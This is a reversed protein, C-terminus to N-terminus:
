VALLLANVPLSVIATDAVSLSVAPLLEPAVVSASLATSVVAGVTVDSVSTLEFPM